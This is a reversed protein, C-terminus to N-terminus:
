AVPFQRAWSNFVMCRFARLITKSAAGERSADRMTKQVKRPDLYAAAAGEAVFSTGRAAILERVLMPEPTGFGMKDRRWLIDEPALGTAAKRLCWKACGDRLKLNVVAPSFAFEVMRYDTFPVRAEVSFAMSNRDEFHLLRPLSFELLHDRLQVDVPDTANRWPYSETANPDSVRELV